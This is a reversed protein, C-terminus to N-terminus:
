ALIEELEFYGAEQMATVLLTFSALWADEVEPTFSDGLVQELTWRLATAATDYHEYRVGSLALRRGLGEVIPLLLDLQDLCRVALTVADMMKRCQGALDAPFMPRLSPDLDFLRYLFLCAATDTVSAMKEFSNQVLYKQQENM